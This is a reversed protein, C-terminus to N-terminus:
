LVAYAAGRRVRDARTPMTELPELWEGLVAAAEEFADSWEIRREEWGAGTQKAHFLGGFAPAAKYPSSGDPLRVEVVPGVAPIFLCRSLEDPHFTTVCAGGDAPTVALVQREGLLRYAAGNVSLFTTLRPGAPTHALIKRTFAVAGPVSYGAGATAVLDGGDTHISFPGPYTGVFSWRLRGGPELAGVPTCQVGGPPPEPGLPVPDGSGGWVHARWSGRVIARCFLFPGGPVVFPMHTGGGLGALMLRIDDANMRM